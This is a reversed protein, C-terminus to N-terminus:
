TNLLIIKMVLFLSGSVFSLRLVRLNAMEGFMELCEWEDVCMGPMEVVRLNKGLSDWDVFPNTLAIGAGDGSEECAVVSGAYVEEVSELALFPMLAIAGFCNQQGLGSGTDVVQLKGLAAGQNGTNANRVLWDLARWAGDSCGAGPFQIGLEWGSPLVVERLNPLLTLLFISGFDVQSSLLNEDRLIHEEWVSYRARTEDLCRSKHVLKHISGSEVVERLLGSSAHGSASNGLFERARFDAHTIYRAIIPENWIEHLLQLPSVIPGEDDKADLRRTVGYAFNAYTRRLANHRDRLPRGLTYFSPSTLMLPEYSDPFSHEIIPTLLEPPLTALPM